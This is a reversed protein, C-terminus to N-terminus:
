AALGLRKIDFLKTPDFPAGRAVHWLASALKRMLAVVAKLKRKGGERECKRLHWAKFHPERRILRLTALYLHKRAVPPGRKTIKLQGTQNGSSKVKLNLGLAKVYSAPSEYAAIDGTEAWMLAATATGVVKATRKMEENKTACVELVKHADAKLQRQRMAEAALQQMMVREGATMVVGSTKKAAEIVRGAKEPDLLSGGVEKMLAIAADAHAIIFYPSGYQALLALTSKNEIATIGALEPFHRALKGELRGLCATFQGSYLEYTDAAAAVDRAEESRTPWLRSREQLHLWGILHAAKADHMSPVGDFLEAADHTHKAAVRYVPVELASMQARLPDGYTGTSELVFEVPAIAKLQSVFSVLAPTESPAKWSLTVLVREGQIVAAANNTKAVDVAVVVREGSRVELASLVVDNVSTTRYTRKSM